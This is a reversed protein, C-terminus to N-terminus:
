ETSAPAEDRNIASQLAHWALTACKVRSPFERVGDLAALKGFDTAPDEQKGGGTTLRDVLQRSFEVADATTMSRVADTLLSASAVSIACGSGEFAADQIRDDRVDLYLTLRDGCLRNIGQAEHTAHELAGFHRPKRAHDLILQQYLATLDAGALAEDM